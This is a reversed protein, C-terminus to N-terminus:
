CDGNEACNVVINVDHFNMIGNADVDTICCWDLDTCVSGEGGFTGGGNTCDVSEVNEGCVGTPYCCAGDAMALAAWGGVGLLISVFMCKTQFRM